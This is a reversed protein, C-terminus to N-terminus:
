ESFSEVEVKQYFKVLGFIVQESSLGANNSDGKEHNM